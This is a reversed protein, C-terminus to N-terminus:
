DRADVRDVRGVAEAERVEARRHDAVHEDIAVAAVDGGAVHLRQPRPELAPQVARCALRLLPLVQAIVARAVSRRRMRTTTLPRISTISSADSSWVITEVASGVITPSSPPMSRREHTTVAYRSAAVTVIGSQPRM